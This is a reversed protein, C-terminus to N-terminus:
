TLSRFDKAKIWSTENYGLWKVLYQKHVGTGRTQLVREITYVKDSDDVLQLEYEYFSGQIVEDKSDRVKYVIPNYKRNIAHVTFIEESWNATYGKEFIGKAKSLRVRDGLQFKAKRSPKKLKGYLHNWINVENNKTVDVPRCGLIRHKSHNYGKVLEDIITTWRYNGHHTFARWMREKLTRNFREVLAAKFQSKVSFQEIGKKTLFARVKVNEFETGQDTQLYNPQRHDKNFIIQFARIIESPTKRKLPIAWAYRSFMDIATLLYNYGQNMRSYKIMDVLDSQWQHDIGRTVYQRTPYHKRASKHTTYTRQSRLWAKVDKLPLRSEQQLRKVGGFSAPNGVDFYIAKLRERDAEKM